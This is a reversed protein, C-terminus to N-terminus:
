VGLNNSMKVVRHIMEDMDTCMKRIGDILAINEADAPNTRNYLQELGMITALPGRIKHSAIFAIDRLVDNQQEITMLHKRHETIDRASCSVGIVAGDADKVSQFWVSTYHVQGDILMDEVTRFNHGTLALNYCTEFKCTYVENKGDYLVNDGRKLPVGIFHQVWQIFADNCALIKLQTDVMWLPEAINNVLMEALSNAISTCEEATYM